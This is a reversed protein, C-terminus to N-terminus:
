TSLEATVALTAVPALAEALALALRGLGLPGIREWIAAHVAIGDATARAARAGADAWYMPRSAIWTRADEALLAPVAEAVLEAIAAVLAPPFARGIVDSTCPPIAHPGDVLSGDGAFTAVRAYPADGFWIEAHLEHLRAPSGGPEFAIGDIIVRELQGRLEVYGNAIAVREHPAPAFDIAIPDRALRAMRGVADATFAEETGTTRFSRALSRWLASTPYPGAYRLTAVGARQALLAIVNLIAGGAGPALRAPAAIAPIETPRAWDIASMATAGEIAHADGLLAHPEIAGRVTAGPVVLHDLRDGDWALTAWVYGTRDVVRTLRGDREVYQTLM